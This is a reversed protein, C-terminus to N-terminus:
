KFRLDGFESNFRTILDFLEISRGATYTLPEPALASEAAVDLLLVLVESQSSGILGHLKLIPIATAAVAFDPLGSGDSALV